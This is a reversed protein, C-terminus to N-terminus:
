ITGDLIWRVLARADEEPLDPNAPMPIPGWNGSSGRKLREVLIGAAEPRGKYRQAVERFAPGVIKKDVGHCSLCAKRKALDAVDLKGPTTTAAPSSIAAAPGPTTASAAPRSDPGSGRVPGVPRNQAALDGHAGKAHEPLASALRAETPCDKMCAVNAVDAKAKIDWLGHDRTKGDRNPLRKQVEAMNRDSLVFDGPVIDALNLMYAVVAYVEETTLTKPANWPMARNVYDWLTSLTSLKMMTTRPTDPSTLSKVRGAQIDAATTGGILPTFVENSEGFVGHCSACKAEWVQQGKQVSGSGPPLGKFDPRVDIDWAKVEAPTAARGVGPYKSQAAAQAPSVLLLTMAAAALCRHAAIWHGEICRSM